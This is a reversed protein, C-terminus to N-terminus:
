RAIANRIETKSVGSTTIKGNRERTCLGVCTGDIRVLKGIDPCYTMGCKGNRIKHEEEKKKSDV